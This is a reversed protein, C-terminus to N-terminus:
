DWGKVSVRPAWDRRVKASEPCEEALVLAVRAWDLLDAL